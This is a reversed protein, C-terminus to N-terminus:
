KDDPLQRVWLDRQPFPIRIQSERFSKDIAFRIDSKTREIRFLNKSYFMLRFELASNGFNEFLVRPEPMQMVDKHAEACKVLVEKVLETDSGYAVGVTIEFRTVKSNNQSWNIVNDTTLRTNPVIIVIDERTLLSTTRLNVDKVQGVTGAIEVIDGATVTREMLIIVGAVLDRFFDQLGLGLGVLIATSGVLLGTISIGFSSIIILIAIIYIFYSVLQVIAYQKGHNVVGRNRRQIFKKFGWILLRAALFILFLNAINFIHLKFDGSEFLVIELFDRINGMLEQLKDM